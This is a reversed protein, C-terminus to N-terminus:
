RRMSGRAGTTVYRGHPWHRYWDAEIVPGGTEPDLEGTPSGVIRLLTGQWVRDQGEQHEPAIDVKVTFPGGARESVTVRCSSASESDCLNRPSLTRYTLELRGDGMKDVIGFWAIKESRYEAPDRRLDEYTVETTGEVVEDEDGYTEYERAYGWQGGGCASLLVLGM